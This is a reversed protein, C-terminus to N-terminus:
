MAAQVASPWPEGSGLMTASRVDRFFSSNLASFFRALNERDQDPVGEGNALNTLLDRYGRFIDPWTDPHAQPSAQSSGVGAIVEAAHIYTELDAHVGAELPKRAILLSSQLIESLLNAGRQYLNREREPSLGAGGPRHLSKFLKGTLLTNRASSSDEASGFSPM